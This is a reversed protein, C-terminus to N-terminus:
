RCREERWSCLGAVVSSFKVKDVPIFFSGYCVPIKELIRDLLIFRIVIRFFNFQAQVFDLLCYFFKLLKNWKNWRNRFPVPPIRKQASPRDPGITGQELPLASAPTSLSLPVQQDTVGSGELPLYDGPLRLALALTTGRIVSEM